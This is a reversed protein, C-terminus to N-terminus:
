SVFFNIGTPCTSHENGVGVGGEWVGSHRVVMGIREGVEKGYGMGRIGLGRGTRMLELM